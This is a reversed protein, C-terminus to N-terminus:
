WLPAPRDSHFHLWNSSNDPEYLQVNKNTPKYTGKVVTESSAVKLQKIARVLIYTTSKTKM